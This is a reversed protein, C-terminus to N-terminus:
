YSNVCNEIYDLYKRQSDLLSQKCNIVSFQYDYFNIDGLELLKQYDEQKSLELRYNNEANQYVKYSLVIKEKNKNIEFEKKRSLEKLKKHYNNRELKVIKRKLYNENYDFLPINVSISCNCNWTQASAWYSNFNSIFNDYNYKQVNPNVSTTLCLTPMEEVIEQVSDLWEIQMILAAKDTKYSENIEKEIIVSCYKIWQSLEFGCDWINLSYLKCNNIMDLKNLLLSNYEDELENVQKKVNEKEYFSIQKNEYLIEMDYSYKKYLELEENLLSEAEIIYLYNGITNIIEAKTKLYNIITNITILDNTINNKNKEKNIIDKTLGAVYAFLPIYMNINGLFQYNNHLKKSELYSNYSSLACEANIGLPLKQSVLFSMYSNYNNQYQEEEYGLYSYTPSFSISIKPMWQYINEKNNEKLIYNEQESCLYDSNTNIKEQLFKEIVEFKMKENAFNKTFTFFSFLLIFLLKKNM